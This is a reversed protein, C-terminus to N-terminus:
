AGTIAIILYHILIGFHSIGGHSRFGVHHMFPYEAFMERMVGTSRKRNEIGFEKEVIKAFAFFMGLVNLRALFENKRQPYVNGIVHGKVGANKHNDFDLIEHGSFGGVTAIHRAPGFWTELEDPTALRKRYPNWTHKPKGLSDLVPSGDEDTEIPLLSAYPLKQKGIPIVSIGSQTLRQATELVQNQNTKM